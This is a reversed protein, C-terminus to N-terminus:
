LQYVRGCSMCTIDGDDTWILKDSDREGCQPCASKAEVLEGKSVGNNEGVSKAEDLM